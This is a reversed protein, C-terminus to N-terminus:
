NPVREMFSKLPSEIYKMIIRVVNGLFLAAIVTGVQVSEIRQLVILSIIITITVCFVDVVMKGKGFEWKLKCALARALGDGPLMIFNSITIFSLGFGLVVIAVLLLIFRATMSMVQPDFMAALPMLIEIFFSFAFSAVIQLYQHVEFEKKLLIIQMIILLINFVFLTVGLSYPTILSLIYGTSTIPPIGIDAKTILCVGYAYFAVGFFYIISRKIVPILENKNRINM